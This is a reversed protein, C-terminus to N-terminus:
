LAFGSRRSIKIRASTLARQNIQRAAPEPVRRRSGPFLSPSSYLRRRFGAVAVTLGRQRCRGFGSRGREARRRDGRVLLVWAVHSERKKVARSSSGVGSSGRERESGGGLAVAAPDERGGGLDAAATKRVAVGFRRRGPGREGAAAVRCRGPSGNPRCNGCLPFQWAPTCNRRFQRAIAERDCTPEIM